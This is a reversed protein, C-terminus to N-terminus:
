QVLGAGQALARLQGALVFVAAGFTLWNARGALTIFLLSAEMATALARGLTATVPSAAYSPEFVLLVDTAFISPVVIAGLSVALAYTARRGSASGADLLQRRIAVVVGAEVAFNIYKAAGTVPAIPGQPTVDSLSDMFYGLEYRINMAILVGVGLAAATLVFPVGGIPRRVLVYIGITIAWTALFIASGSHISLGVLASVGALVLGSLRGKKVLAVSGSVVVLFALCERIQIISKACFAAVLVTAAVVATTRRYPIAVGIAAAGILILTFLATRFADYGEVGFLEGCLTIFSVFAPDRGQRALYGGDSSYLSFYAYWDLNRDYGRFYSGLAAMVAVFALTAAFGRVYYWIRDAIM